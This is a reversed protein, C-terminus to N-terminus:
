SLLHKKLSEFFADYVKADKTEPVALQINIVVSMGAAAGTLVTPKAIQAPVEAADVAPALPVVVDKAAPSGDFDAIGALARFTHITKVLVQAGASVHRRFFAEIDGDSRTDADTYLSFLEPYGDRIAQALM